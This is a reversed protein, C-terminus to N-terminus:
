DIADLLVFAAWYEPAKWKGNLRVTQKAMELADHKNQGNMWNKYFETMLLCTADDDVKWLSMLISNAGAKKFGRQLGFVGDSTIKGQGTECASLVVLDLGSLDLSSIELSTLIGDEIGEPIVEGQSKNDAGALYLGSRLLVDDATNISNIDERYFGHTAIHILKKHKGDLSKFAAETGRESLLAEAHMDKRAANNITRVISEAETKTGKLYPIGIVAGRMDISLDNSSRQQPYLQADALMDAIEMDYYLGGFVVADKSTETQNQYALWRTSSLRYLRYAESILHGDEMPQSELPIQYLLGTPAFYISEINSPIVELIPIWLRQYLDILSDGLEKEEILPVFRVHEWRPSMVLAAYMTSDKGINYDVFEIAVENLKLNSKVDNYNIKMFDMYQYLSNASMGLSRELHDAERTSAEAEEPITQPDLAKLRLQRISQYTTKLNPDNDITRQLANETTLLLGKALLQQNFLEDTFSSQWEGFKHAFTFMTTTMPQYNNWYAARESATLYTFNQEVNTQIIKFIHKRDQLAEDTMNYFGEYNSRLDIASLTESHLEGYYELAADVSQNAAQMAEEKNGLNYYCGALAYWTSRLSSKGSEGLSEEIELKRNFDDTAQQYQGKSAWCLGRLGYFQSLIESDYYTQNERKKILSSLIAISEDYNKEVSKQRAEALVRLDAFVSDLKQKPEQKTSQPSINKDLKEDNQSNLANFPHADSKLAEARQQWLLHKESDPIHTKYINSLYDASYYASVKDKANLCFSYGLELYEIADKFQEIDKKIYGLHYFAKGRIGEYSNNDSCEQTIQLYLSSAEEIRGLDFLLGARTLQEKLKLESASALSYYHEAKLCLSLAQQLDVPHGYQDIKLGTVQGSYTNGVGRLALKYVESDPIDNEIATQYHQRSAEYEKKKLLTHGMGIHNLAISRKVKPILRETGEISQLELLAKEYCENSKVFDKEKHYSRALNSLSDFRNMGILYKPQYVLSDWGILPFATICANLCENSKAYDKDERYTMAMRQLRVCNASISDQIPPILEGMELNKLETIGIAYYGNSKIYNGQQSYAIAMETSHFLRNISMGERVEFIISDGEFSPNQIITLIHQYCEDSKEYEKQETLHVAYILLSDVMNGEIFSQYLPILTDAGISPLKAIISEYYQSSKAFRRQEVCTVALDALSDILNWEMLERVAPILSDEGYIPLEAIIQEYCQNSKAYEKQLAYNDAKEFLPDLKPNRATATLCLLTAIIFYTIRKM